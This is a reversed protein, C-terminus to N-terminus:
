PGTTWIQVWFGTPTGPVLQEDEDYHATVDQGQNWPTDKVCHHDLGAPYWNPEGQTHVEVTAEICEARAPPAGGVVIVGAAVLAVSGTIRMDM